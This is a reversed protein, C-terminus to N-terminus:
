CVREVRGARVAWNHFLTKSSSICRAAVYICITYVDMSVFNVKCGHNHLFECLPTPTNATYNEM